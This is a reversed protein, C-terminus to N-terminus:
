LRVIELKKQVNDINVLLKGGQQLRFRLSRSSSKTRQKKDPRITESMLEPPVETTWGTAHELASSLEAVTVEDGYVRISLFEVGPVPSPKDGPPTPVNPLQSTTCANYAFGSSCISVCVVGTNDTSEPAVIHGCPSEISTGAFAASGMVFVLISIVLIRHM